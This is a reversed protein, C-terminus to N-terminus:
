YFTEFLAVSLILGVLGLLQGKSNITYILIFFFVLAPWLKLGELLTAYPNLSLPLYDAMGYGNGLARIEFAKPSIRAVWGQPWPYIQIITLIVLGIALWWLPPYPIILTEHPNACIQYLLFILLTLSTLTTLLGLSFYAWPHVAGYALPAFILIAGSIAMIIRRGWSSSQDLSKIKRATAISASRM